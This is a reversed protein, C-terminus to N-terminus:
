GFSLQARGVLHPEGGGGLFHEGHRLEVALRHAVALGPGGEAAHVREELLVLRSQAALGYGSSFRVDSGMQYPMFVIMASGSLGASDSRVNGHTKGILTIPLRSSPKAWVIQSM